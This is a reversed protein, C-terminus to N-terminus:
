IKHQAGVFKKEKEGSASTHSFSSFHPYVLLETVKLGKLSM